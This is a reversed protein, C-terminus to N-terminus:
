LVETSSILVVASAAIGEERGVFGLKETSTAKINVQNLKIGLTEAIKAKMSDIYPALKPKEAMVVSDINEIKWKDSILDLVRKLLIQSDIGKFEPDNDPFQNGIDKFGAAGLLADCIAHTLVDADSHGLLVKEAPIEIGALIFRHGSREPYKEDFDVKKILSHVDYGQGIRLM